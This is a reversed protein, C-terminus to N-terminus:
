NAILQNVKNWINKISETVEGKSYEVVSLGEM